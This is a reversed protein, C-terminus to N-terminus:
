QLNLRKMEFRANTAITRDRALDIAALLHERAAAKQGMRHGLLAGLGLHVRDLDEGRPYNKIYYRFVAAADRAFGGNHLWEALAFVEPPHPPSGGERAIRAFAYAADEMRGAGLATHFTQTPDEITRAPMPEGRRYRHHREVQPHPTPHKGFIANILFAGAVGGGFGGIHALYAVGGEVGALIPLINDLLFVKFLLVWVASIHWVDIFYFLWVFVKIKNHPFWVLYFGLVGSLAGSAGVLPIMSESNAVAFTVTAAVGTVLYGVLYGFRGMRAEVNDGFIWLFLMNGFLHMLGGHLFMCFFLSLLTPAAPKYGYKFSFLADHTLQAEFQEKTILGRGHGKEAAELQMKEYAKWYQDILARTETDARDAATLPRNMGVNVFLFVAVNLGILIRTV